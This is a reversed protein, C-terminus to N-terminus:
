AEDEGETGELEPSEGKLTAETNKLLLEKKEYYFAELMDGADRKQDEDESYLCAKLESILADAIRELEESKVKM